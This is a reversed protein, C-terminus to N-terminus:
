PKQGTGKSKELWAKMLEDYRSDGRLNALDPDEKLLAFNDFGYELAQRLAALAGDIDGLQSRCCAVNYTAAPKMFDLAAAREFAPAAERYQGLFIRAFGLRYHAEGDEPRLQTLADYARVMDAWDKRFWALHARRAIAAVASEQQLEKSLQLRLFKLTDQIVDRTRVSDETVDFAHRASAHVIYTMDVNAAAAQLAFRDIRENLAPTDVGAKVICYALDPRIVAPLQEPMGYYFVACRLYTRSSAMALPLVRQVNDSCAWWAVNDADLSLERQHEKLYQMLVDLNDGAGNSTAQYTVAALGECAVARAWSTYQGWNKLDRYGIGNVFVVVPLRRDGRFEPPTYLDFALALGDAMAPQYVIDKQVGVAAAAPPVFRLTRERPKGDGGQALALVALGSLAAALAVWRFPRGPLRRSSAFGGRPRATSVEPPAGM